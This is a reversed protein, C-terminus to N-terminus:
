WNLCSSSSVVRVLSFLFQKVTSWVKRKKSREEGKEEGPCCLSSIFADDDTEEMKRASRDVAMSFRKRKGQRKECITACLEYTFHLPSDGYVCWRTQSRRGDLENSRYSKTPHEKVFKDSPHMQMFSLNESIELKYQQLSIMVHCQCLLTYPSSTEPLLPLV